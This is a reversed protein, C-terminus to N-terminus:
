PAVTIQKGNWTLWVSSWWNRGPVWAELHQGSKLVALVEASGAQNRKAIVCVDENVRIAPTLPGAQVEWLILIQDKDEQSPQVIKYEGQFAGHVGVDVIVPRIWQSIEARANCTFCLYVLPHYLAELYERLALDTSGCRPCVMPVSGLSRRVIIQDVAAEDLPVHIPSSWFWSGGGVVINPVEGMEVPIGPLFRQGSVFYAKM